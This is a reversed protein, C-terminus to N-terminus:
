GFFIDLVLVSHEDVEVWKVGLFISFLGMRLARSPSMPESHRLGWPDFCQSDVCEHSDEMTGGPYAWNEQECHVADGLVCVQGPVLKKPSQFTHCIHFFISGLFKRAM